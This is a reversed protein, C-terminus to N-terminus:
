RPWGVCYPRDEPPLPTLIQNCPAPNVMTTTARGGNERPFPRHNSHQANQAQNLTLLAPDDSLNDPEDKPKTTDRKVPRDPDPAVEAKVPPSEETKERTKGKTPANAQETEGAQQAHTAALHPTQGLDQTRM